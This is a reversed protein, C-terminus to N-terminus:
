VVRPACSSLVAPTSAGLEPQECRLLDPVGAYGHRSWDGGSVSLESRVSRKARRVKKLRPALQTLVGRWRRSWCAVLM